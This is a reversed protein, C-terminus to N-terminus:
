KGNAVVTEILLQKCLRMRSELMTGEVVELVMDLCVQQRWDSEMVAEEILDM